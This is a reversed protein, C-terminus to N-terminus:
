VNGYKISYLSAHSCKPTFNIVTFLLANSTQYILFFAVDLAVTCVQDITDFIPQATVAANILNGVNNSSQGLHFAGVLVALLVQVPLLM